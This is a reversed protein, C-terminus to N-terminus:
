LFKLNVQSGSSTKTVVLQKEIRTKLEPVHSIIGVLRDDVTLGHLTEIAKELSAEDLTGFGEDIFLTDIKVGGAHNQIVDSLGLALALAAQFTEGGSLSGVSRVKGTYKDMVDLDLTEKNESEKLDHYLLEYRGGTMGFLRQNAAQVADEFYAALVYQEFQRKGLGGSLTGNATKDLNEILKQRKQQKNCKRWETEIHNLAAKNVTIRTNLATLRENMEARRLKQAQMMQELEEPDAEIAEKLQMELNDYQTQLEQRQQREEDLQARLKQVQEAPVNYVGFQEQTMKSKALQQAWINQAEEEKEKAQKQAATREGMREKIRVCEQEYQQIQREQEAITQELKRQKQKLQQLGLAAAEQNEDPLTNKIESWQEKAGALATENQVKAQKQEQVAEQIKQLELRRNKLHEEATQAAKEEAEWREKERCLEQEAQTLQLDCAILQKSLAQIDQEDEVQQGCERLVKVLQQLYLKRQAKAIVSSQGSENAAQDRLERAKDLQQKLTDLQAKDPVNEPVKAIIPHHISGCVPCPMDEKLEKALIGAQSQWFLREAADYGQQHADFAQQAQLYRQQDQKMQNQLQTLNKMQARVQQVQEECKQVNELKQVSKQKQESAASRSGAKEELIAAQKEKESYSQEAIQLQKCIKEQQQELATIKQQAQHLRVYEEVRQQQVQVEEALQKTQEKFTQLQAKREDMAAAQEQLHKQEEEAQQMKLTEVSAANNADELKEWVPALTYVATEQQKLHEQQAKFKSENAEYERRKEELKEKQKQLSQTNVASQWRKTTDELQADLQERQQTLESKEQKDKQLFANGHELVEECRWMAQENQLLERLALTDKNEEPESPLQLGALYQKLAQEIQANESRCKSSMVKLRNQIEQYLQTGFIQRLVDSRDKGSKNLLESFQNQAIMAIQRFQDVNIRLLEQIKADAETKTGALAKEGNETIQYLEAKAAKEIINYKGDKKRKSQRIQAPQRLVRYETQDHEFLLEISTETTDPAYDSRMMKEDRIRGSLKGFLAYCVADFLTTKGAGTDGTILFLGSKGLKTMDVVQTGGYPGFATMTLKLPKM